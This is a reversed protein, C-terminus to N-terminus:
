SHTSGLLGPFSPAMASMSITMSGTVRQPRSSRVEPWDFRFLPLFTGITLAHAKSLSHTIEDALALGAAFSEGSQEPYGTAFLAVGRHTHACVGADHGGYQTALRSHEAPDYLLLGAEAHELQTAFDGLFPNGWSAHHAQLLMAPDRHREAIAQMEAATERWEDVETRVMHIVIFGWLIPFLERDDGVERCLERARVYCDAAETSAWGLSMM